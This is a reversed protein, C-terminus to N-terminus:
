GLELLEDQVLLVVVGALRLTSDFPLIIGLPTPMGVALEGEEDWTCSVVGGWPRLPAGLTLLM